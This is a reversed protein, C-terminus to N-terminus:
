RAADRPPVVVVKTRIEDRVAGAVGQDYEEESLRQVDAWNQATLMARFAAEPTDKISKWEFATKYVLGSWEAQSAVQTM